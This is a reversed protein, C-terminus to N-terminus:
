NALSNSQAKERALRCQGPFLATNDGSTHESMLNKPNDVHDGSNALVHFMEHALALGEDTVVNTLWVSDQLWPRNRTNARGFAEGDFQTAMTTDRAFVLTLRRNQGTRRLVEMLTRSANGSLDKLYDPAAVRKVSVPNLVFGCHSLIGAAQQLARDVREDEWDDDLVLADLPVRLPDVGAPQPFEDAIWEYEDVMPIEPLTIALPDAIYGKNVYKIGRGDAFRREIAKLLEDTSQEPNRQLIKAALALFRPVAYSSGSAVQTDGSFQLVTQFEAPLMYDVSDFGWNVGDAPRGFDDVSTVVVLNHMKLSAPYVPQQDINRANNGASAVFLIDPYDAAAQEFVEWADRQGGGLPLGMLRVGLRNAHELLDRMRQMNGRPYRYPVLEVFEAERLLVSATATGHRQVYFPSRAPHADFPQEDMDWFDYGALSGNDKRALRSAIQPLLYNVGADVMAVKITPTQSDAVSARGVPVPPNLLLVQDISGNPAYAAIAISDANHRLMRHHRQVDCDAGFWWQEHQGHVDILTLRARVMPSTNQARMLDVVVVPQGPQPSEPWGIMEIVGGAVPVVGPKHLHFSNIETLRVGGSQAHLTLPIDFAQDESLGECLEIAVPTTLLVQEADLGSETGAGLTLVGGAIWNALYSM